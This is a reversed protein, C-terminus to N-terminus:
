KSPAKKPTKKKSGKKAGDKKPKAKEKIPKPKELWKLIRKADERPFVEAFAPMDGRGDMITRLAANYEKGKLVGVVAPSPTSLAGAAPGDGKGLKGHCMWCNQKYLNGGRDFDKARKTPQSALVLTSYLLLFM